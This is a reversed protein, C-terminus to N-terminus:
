SDLLRADSDQPAFLKGAGSRITRM